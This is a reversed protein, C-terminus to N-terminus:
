EFLLHEGFVGLAILGLSLAVALVASAILPLSRARIALFLAFLGAMTGLGGVLYGIFVSPAALFFWLCGENGENINSFQSTRYLLYGQLGGWLGSMLGSALSLLASVWARNSNAREDASAPRPAQGPGLPSEPTSM